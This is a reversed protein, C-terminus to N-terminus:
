IGELKCIIWTIPQFIPFDLIWSLNLAEFEAAFSHAESRAVTKDGGKDRDGSKPDHQGDDSGASTDRIVGVVRLEHKNSDVGDAGGPAELAAASGKSPDISGARWDTSRPANLAFVLEVSESSSVALRASEGRRQVLLITLIFHYVSWWLFGLMLALYVDITYHSYCMPILVWVCVALMYCFYRLLPLRTVRSWAGRLARCRRQQRDGTEQQQWEAEQADRPVFCRIAATEMPAPCGAKSLNFWLKFFAVVQYLFCGSLTDHPEGVCTVDRCLGRRKNKREPSCQVRGYFVWCLVANMVNLSHGSIIMGACEGSHFAAQLLAAYFVEAANQPRPPSCNPKSAPVTTVVIAVARMWFGWITLCCFRSAVQFNFPFPLLFLVRACTLFVVGFTSLDVFVVVWSPLTKRKLLQDHIRDPLSPQKEPIYFSDALISMLSIGYVTVLMALISCFLRVLQFKVNPNTWWIPYFRAPVPARSTEAKTSAM